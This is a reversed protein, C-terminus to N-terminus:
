ARRRKPARVPDRHQVVPDGDVVMTSPLPPAPADVPVGYGYGHILLFAERESVDLEDGVDVDRLSWVFSRIARVRM